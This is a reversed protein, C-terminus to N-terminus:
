HSKECEEEPRSYQTLASKEKGLDLYNRRKLKDQQAKQFKEMCKVQMVSCPFGQTYDM